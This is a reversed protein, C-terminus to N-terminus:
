GYITSLILCESGWHCKFSSSVTLLKKLLYIVILILDFSDDTKKYKNDTSISGRYTGTSAFM